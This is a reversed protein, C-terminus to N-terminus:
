RHEEITARGGSKAYKKIKTEVEQETDTLLICTHPDSSSM